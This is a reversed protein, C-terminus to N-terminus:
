ESMQVGAEDRPVPKVMRKVGREAYGLARLMENGHKAKGGEEVGVMEDGGGIKDNGEADLGLVRGLLRLAKNRGMDLLRETEKVEDEWTRALQAQEVQDKRAGNIINEIRDYYETLAKCKNLLDVAHKHTTNRAICTAPYAPITPDLTDVYTPSHLAQFIHQKFKANLRNKDEDRHENPVNDEQQQV